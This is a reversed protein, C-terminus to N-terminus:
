RGLNDASESRGGNRSRLIKCHWKLVSPSERKQSLDEWDLKDMLCRKLGEMSGRWSAHKIIWHDASAQLLVYNTRRRKFKAPRIRM